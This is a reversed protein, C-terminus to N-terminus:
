NSGSPHSAILVANSGGFAFSNSMVHDTALARAGDPIYDLDCAPDPQDLHATPPATQARLALIAIAFELAGAAGMLHGHLAKTSSIPLQPARDGFALRIAQTETADGAVTGTGHANLYGVAEPKLRADQLAQRMAQAQGSASPRTLHQGDATCAYGTIEALIEAGRARARDLEELVLVAAGESLVLGTRDASFPRCASAPELRGSALVGLSDWAKLVGYSLLSEAGGAVVADLYGHRIARFGEGVAMSSSACASSVTLTGGRLGFALGVQAAAAGNMAAIVSFPAVRDRHRLYLDDYGTEVTCAGGMGTGFYVGTRDPDLTGATGGRLAADAAMLALAAFRDLAARGRLIAHDSLSETVQGAFPTALRSGLAEPLRTIGSIGGLLNDFLPGPWNGCPSVVGMATVVVRRM